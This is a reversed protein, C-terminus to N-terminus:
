DGQDRAIQLEFGLVTFTREWVPPMAGKKGALMENVYQRSAGVVTAFEGQTMGRRKIEDRVVRRIEDTM